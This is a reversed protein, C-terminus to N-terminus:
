QKRGELAFIKAYTKSEWTIASNLAGTFYQSWNWVNYLLIALIAWGFAKHFGKGRLAWKFGFWALVIGIVVVLVINIPARKNM